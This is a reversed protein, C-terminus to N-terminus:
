MTFQRRYLAFRRQLQLLSFRSADNMLRKASFLDSVGKVPINNETMTATTRDFWLIAGDEVRILAGVAVARAERNATITAMTLPHKLNTSNRTLASSDTEKPSAVSSLEIDSVKALLVYDARVTGGLSQIKEIDPTEGQKWLQTNAIGLQRMAKELESPKCLAEGSLPLLNPKFLHSLDTPLERMAGPVVQKGEPTFVLADAREQSITPLVAIREHQNVFPVRGGKSLQYAAVNGAQVVAELIQQSISKLYKSQFPSKVVISSGSAFVQDRINEAGRIKKGEKSAPLSSSGFDKERADVQVAGWFCVERYMGNRIELKIIRPTLLSDCKLSKMLTEKDVSASLDSSNLFLNKRIKETELEPVAKISSDSQLSAYLADEFLTQAVQEWQKENLESEREFTAKLSGKKPVSQSDNELPTLRMQFLGSKRPRAGREKRNKEVEECVKVDKSLPLRILAATFAGPIPRRQGYCSSPISFPVLFLLFILLAGILNRSM